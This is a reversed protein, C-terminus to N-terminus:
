TPCGPSSPSAKTGTFRTRTAPSARMTSWTAAPCVRMACLYSTASRCTKSSDRGQFAPRAARPSGFRARPRVTKEYDADSAGIEAINVDHMMANQAATKIAPDVDEATVGVVTTHLTHVREGAADTYTNTVTILDRGAIRRVSSLEVDIRLEDGAVIPRHQEFVEETQVYTHYGVVVEEFMRRNCAMGPVSTFTLPAVLDPYGLEAAAAVDWHAPHYDQVARAYERLKERGVLYTRDMQYYHGVRSEIASAEAATTM